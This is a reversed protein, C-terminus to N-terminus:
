LTAGVGEVLALQIRAGISPLAAHRAPDAGPSDWTNGAGM